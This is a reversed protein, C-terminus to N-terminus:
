YTIEHKGSDIVKLYIALHPPLTIKVKGAWEIIVLNKPDALYEELDISKLDQSSSLRYLDLHVLNKYQPHKPISYQRMLVYTPSIVRKTIGLEKALHQTFTTKGSGLDGHLAIVHRPPLINLIKPAINPM